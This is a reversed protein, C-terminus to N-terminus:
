GSAFKGGTVHRNADCRSAASRLCTQRRSNVSKWKMVLLVVHRLESRSVRGPKAALDLRLFRLTSHPPRLPCSRTAVRFIVSTLEVTSLPLVGVVVSRPPLTSAITSALPLAVGIRGVGGVAPLDGDADQFLVLVHEDVAHRGVAERLHEHVAQHRLALQEAEVRPGLLLEALPEDNSRSIEGCAPTSICGRPM